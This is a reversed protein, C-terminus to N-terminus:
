FGSVLLVDPSSDSQDSWQHNCLTENAGISPMDEGCDDTHDPVFKKQKVKVVEHGAATAARRAEQARVKSDTPFAVVKTSTSETASLPLM